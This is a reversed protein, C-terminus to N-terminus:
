LLPKTDTIDSRTLVYVDPDASNVSNKGVGTSVYTNNLDVHKHAAATDDKALSKYFYYSLGASVGLFITTFAIDAISTSTYLSSRLNEM